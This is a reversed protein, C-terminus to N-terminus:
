PSSPSSVNDQHTTMKENSFREGITEWLICSVWGSPIPNCGYSLVHGDAEQITVSKEHHRETSMGLSYCTLSMRSIVVLRM